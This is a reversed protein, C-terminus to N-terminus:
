PVYEVIRQKQPAGMTQLRGRKGARNLGINSFRDLSQLGGERPRINKIGVRGGCM